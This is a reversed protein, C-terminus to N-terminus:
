YGKLNEYFTYNEIDEKLSNNNINESVEKLEYIYEQVYIDKLDSDITLKDTLENNSDFKKKKESIYFNNSIDFLGFSPNEVTGQNILLKPTRILEIKLGFRIYVSNELDFSNEYHLLEQEHFDNMSTAYNLQEFIFNKDRVKSIEKLIESNKTNYLVLSYQLINLWIINLPVEVDVMNGFVTDNITYQEKKYISLVDKGRSFSSVNFNKLDEIFCSRGNFKM